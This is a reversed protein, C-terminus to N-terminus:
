LVGVRRLPSRGTAGLQGRLERYSGFLADLTLARRQYRHHDHEWTFGIAGLAQLTAQAVRVSVRGALAKVLMADHLPEPAFSRAEESMVALCANRLGVVEVEAAALLQQVPPLAGIPTGFQRRDLVYSVALDMLQECVGLIEWASALRVLREAEDRREDLDDVRVQDLDTANAVVNACGADLPQPGVISFASPSGVLLGDSGIDVVIREAELAGAAVTARVVDGTSEARYSAITNFDQLGDAMGLQQAILLGMAPTTALSRGEARFLAGFSEASYADDLDLVPAWELERLPETGSPSRHLVAEAAETFEETM